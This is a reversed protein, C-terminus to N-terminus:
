YGYGALLYPLIGNLHICVIGNRHQDCLYGGLPAHGLLDDLLVGHQQVHESQLDLAGLICVIIFLPIM